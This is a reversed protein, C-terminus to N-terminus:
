LNQGQQDLQLAQNSSVVQKVSALDEVAGEQGREKLRDEEDMIKTVEESSLNLIRLMKSKLIDQYASNNAFTKSIAAMKQLATLDDKEKDFSNTVVVECGKESMLDRPDVTEEYTNSGVIARITIDALNPNYMLIDAWIKVVNEMNISYEVAADSLRKQINQQIIEAEGLTAVGKEAVGQVQSPTASVANAQNELYNMLSIDLPNRVVELRQIVEAPKGPVPIFGFPQPIIPSPDYDEAATQDYAIMGLNNLVANQVNQSLLVSRIQHLARIDDALGKSWIDKGEINYAWSTFPYFDERDEPLLPYLIERLDGSFLCQGECLIYLRIKTNGELDTEKRYDEWVEVINSDNYDDETINYGVERLPELSRAQDESCINVPENTIGEEKAKKILAIKEKNLRDDKFLEGLPVRINKHIIYRATQIDSKKCFPDIEIDYPDVNDIEIRGGVINVKYFSRGYLLCQKKDIRDKIIMKKKQTQEWIKNIFLTRQDDEGFGDYYTIKTDTYEDMNAAAVNIATATITDSVNQTQTLRDLVSKNRFNRYNTNWEIIRNIKYTESQNKDALCKEYDDLVIDKPEM